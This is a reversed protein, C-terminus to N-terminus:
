KWFSKLEIFIQSKIFYILHLINFFIDKEDQERATSIAEFWMEVMVVVGVM